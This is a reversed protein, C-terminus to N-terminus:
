TWFRVYPRAKRQGTVISEVEVIGQAEYECEIGEFTKLERPSDVEDNPERQTLRM